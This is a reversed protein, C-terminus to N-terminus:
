HSPIVLPRTQKQMPSVQGGPLPAGNQSGPPPQPPQIGPNQPQQKAIYKDPDKKTRDYATLLLKGTEEPDFIPNAMMRDYQELDFAREMEESMPSIVDPTVIAMYNLERFLQPHVSILTDKKYNKGMEALLQYSYNLKDHESMPETPHDLSFRVRRNGSSHGTNAHHKNSLMFTRYVLQTNDSGELMEVEPLTMYQKIDGIRLRAFQKVYITEMKTFLGLMQQANAELKSIEYATGQGPPMLGQQQQSITSEDMSKEVELMADYAAKLNQSATLLPQVSANPDQLTTVAGPIMVDSGIIEGGTVMQPPMLALYTGDMVMPYLTNIVKDDPMNKFVMSKGYFCRNQPSIPEFFFKAFPYLGDERPNADDVPTLLVGNMVVQFMNLHKNWYLIQEVEYPRMQSDYVEYFSQNADNYLIMVGPKVYQFNPLDGWREKATTYDVVKRWILFRQRQIDPEYFDAIYLQDVPVVEERFGSMDEDLVQGTKTQRYVEAYETYVIAAPAVLASIVSYISSEFYTSTQSQTTWEFLDNMAQAADEQEQNDKDFAFMHPYILRATTKAAIAMAKNRTVPRVANSRWANADDGDLSDGDNPQYTNWTMLDVSNRQLVSLDNFERRPKQMIQDGLVFDFRITNILEREKQSPMYASVTSKSEDVMKGSKDLEITSDLWM